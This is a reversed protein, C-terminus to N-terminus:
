TGALWGFLSLLLWGLLGIWAPTVVLLGFLIVAVTWCYLPRGDAAPEVGLPDLAREASEFRALHERFTM